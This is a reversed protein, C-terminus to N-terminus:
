LSLNRSLSLAFSYQPSLQKGKYNRYVPIDYLASIIWAGKLSYSLQPTFVLLHYGTNVEKEDKQIDRGHVENRLQVIGFLKPVLKRSIFLSNLVLQGSQYDNRNAFNYEYRNFLFLRLYSDPYEKSLLLTGAMGFANTSPRADLQLLTGNPAKMPELTFPFKLGLGATVEINRRTDMYLAYKLMALGNSLGKGNHDTLLDNRFDVVKSFFYGMDLQATLRHSVGYEMSLGAFSYHANNAMDLSDDSPKSGEYYVDSFSQRYFGTVRLANKDLVGVYTSAGVPNGTSCCQASLDVSTHFILLLTWCFFIVKNLRQSMCMKQLKMVVPM